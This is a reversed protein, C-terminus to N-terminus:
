EGGKDNKLAQERYQSPTMGYKKKFLTTFYPVNYVGVQEGIQAISDNTTAILIKAQEMRIHTVYDNFTTGTMSKFLKGIYGSSFGVKDAAAELSLGHEVYQEQVFQQIDEIIKANKVVSTNKKNDELIDVINFCLSVLLKEMDDLTEIDRIGNMSKYIQQEDVSWWETISEFERITGLIMFNTDQMAKVYTCGSLFARFEEIEKRIAVRHCLKVADILRKEISTPYRSHQEQAEHMGATSVCGHGLFLRSTMYEQASKYSNSIESVSASPEGVSVSLSVRYYYGVTEQIEGLMLYLNDGPKETECQLILVIEDKDLNAVDIRYSKGLIELAINSIAFRYLGRDFANNRERFAQYGDIKFLLVTLYPGGFWNEWERKMETSVAIRNANGKLLHSIYSDKLANASRHLTSEMMKATEISHSFAENLMEYEDLRFLSQNGAGNATNVKELLTRIPNYINGSLLLSCGAGALLLLVVIVITWNRLETINSIMEAYPRVSIFYWDLNASKVYTVLHKQHDIKEIFSGQGRNDDLIRRVYNNGSFNEMFHKPDSHSLVTGSADMVFTLSDGSSGSITKMTNRIYNEDLDVVIASQPIKTFSREPIIKFTLLRFSTGGLSKVIRPFFGFYSADVKKGMAADPSLGLTDIYAGTTFNYISLNKIFPYVGQIRALFLSATYDVLKSDDTAYLFSMMEHDSLLQGTITQIQEYVVNSTYSVQTLMQKSSRDIEQVARASFMTYLTLSLLAITAVSLLLYSLVMRRYVRYHRIRKLFTM